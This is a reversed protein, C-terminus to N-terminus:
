EWEFGLFCDKKVLINLIWTGKRRGHQVGFVM